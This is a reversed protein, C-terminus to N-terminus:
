KIIMTELRAYRMAFDYEYMKVTEIMNSIFEEDREITSIIIDLPQGSVEQCQTVLHTEDCGLMYM